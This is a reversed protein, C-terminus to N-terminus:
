GCASACFIYAQMDVPALWASVFLLQSSPPHPPPPPGFLFAFVGNSLSLAYSRSNFFGLRRPWRPPVPFRSASRPTAPLNSSISPAPPAQLSTMLSCALGFRNSLSDFDQHHNLMFLYVFSGYADRLTMGILSRNSGCLFHLLGLPSIHRSPFICLHFIPLFRNRVCASLYIHPSLSHLPPSASPPVSALHVPTPQHSLSLSLSSRASLFHVLLVSLSLSLSVEMVPRLHLFCTGLPMPPGNSRRTGILVLM